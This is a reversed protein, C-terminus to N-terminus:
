FPIKCCDENACGAGSLESGKLGADSGQTSGQEVLGARHEGQLCHHQSTQTHGEQGLCPLASEQSECEFGPVQACSVPCFGVPASPHGSPVQFETSGSCASSSELWSPSARWDCLESGAECLTAVWLRCLVGPVTLGSRRPTWCDPGVLVASCLKADRAKLEAGAADAPGSGGQFTALFLPLSAQLFGSVLLCPSLHSRRRPCINAVARPCVGTSSGQQAVSLGRGARTTSISLHSPGLWCPSPRYAHTDGGWGHGLPRCWREPHLLCASTISM